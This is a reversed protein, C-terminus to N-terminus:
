QVVNDEVNHTGDNRTDKDNSLTTKSMTRAMVRQTKQVHISLKNPKATPIAALRNGTRPSTKDM